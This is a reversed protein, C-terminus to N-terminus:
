WQLHSLMQRHYCWRFKQRLFAYDVVEHDGVLVLLCSFLVSATVELNQVFDVLSDVQNFVQTDAISHEHSLFVRYLQFVVHEDVHAFGVDDDVYDKATEYLLVLVQLLIARLSLAVVVILLLQM